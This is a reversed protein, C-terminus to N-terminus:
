DLLGLLRKEEETLKALAEEKKIQATVTNYEQVTNYM